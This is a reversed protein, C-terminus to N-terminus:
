WVDTPWAAPGWRFVREADALAGPTRAAIRGGAALLYPSTDGLFLAGLGSRGLDLDPEADIRTCRAAGGSVELQYTGTARPWAPDTVGLRLAGDGHYRRGELAAVPDTVHVWLEHDPTLSARRLDRLLFPLGDDVPRLAATVRSVLDFSAAYRWIAAAAEADVTYLEDFRCTGTPVLGDWDGKLRAVAYGRDNGDADVYVLYRCASWGQSGQAALAFIRKWWLAQRVIIGPRDATAAEYVAPFRKKATDRSIELVAGPQVPLGLLERGDVEIAQSRGAVGYGFRDYIAGESAYLAAIPEGDAAGAEHLRRLMETLVGRRHHRASVTIWTIGTCPLSGGPVQMVHRYAGATAEVSDGDFGGLPRAFDAMSRMRAAAGEPFPEIFAAEMAGVFAPWEEDSPPRFELSM